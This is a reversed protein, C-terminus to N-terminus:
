VPRRRALKALRGTLESGQWAADLAEEIMRRLEDGARERALELNLTIIGLLNNFDHAIRGAPCDKAETQRVRHSPPSAAREVPEVLNDLEIVAVRGGLDRRSVCHAAITLERGKKHVRSVEGKWFGCRDLEAASAESEGATKQKLLDGACRGIAESATWGYLREAGRSWHVIRGDLIGIIAQMQELAHLIMLPSLADRRPAISSRQRPKPRPGSGTAAVRGSRARRDAVSARAALAAVPRTM